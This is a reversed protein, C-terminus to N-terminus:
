FAASLRDRTRAFLVDVGGFYKAKWIEGLMLPFGFHDYIKNEGIVCAFHFSNPIATLFQEQSVRAVNDVHNPLIEILLENARSLIEPMGLLANYEAGEIDMVILEFSENPLVEDLPQCPVRCIAPRDYYFEPRNTHTDVKSGGSNITSKLFDLEGTSNWAALHLIRVNALDNLKVNEKLIGFTDPNAEIGVVERGLKALPILLAGIHTGVVLIRSEAGILCRLARIHDQNYGGSHSLQRAVSFDEVPILLSGNPTQTLLATVNTGVLQRRFNALTKRIKLKLILALPTKAANTGM